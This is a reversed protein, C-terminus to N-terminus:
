RNRVMIYGILSILVLLGVVSLGMPSKQTPTSEPTGQNKLEPIVEPEIIEESMIISTNEKAAVPSTGAIEDTQITGDILQFTSTEAFDKGIVEARVMYTDPGWTSSSFTASWTYQSNNGFIVPVVQSGGGNMSKEYKGKPGFSAPWVEVLVSNDTNFNTIGQITIEDGALYLSNISFDAFSYGVIILCFLIM